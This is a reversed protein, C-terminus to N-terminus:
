LQMLIVVELANFILFRSDPYGTIERITTMNTLVKTLRNLM